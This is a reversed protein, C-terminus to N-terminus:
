SERESSVWQQREVQSLHTPASYYNLCADESLWCSPWQVWPPSHNIECYDSHPNAWSIYWDFCLGETLMNMSKSSTFICAFLRPPWCFLQSLSLLFSLFAAILSLFSLEISLLHFTLTFPGTIHELFYHPKECAEREGSLNWYLEYVVPDMILLSQIWWNEKNIKFNLLASSIIIDKFYSFGM